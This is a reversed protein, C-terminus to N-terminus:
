AGTSQAWIDNRQDADNASRSAYADEIADLISAECKREIQRALQGWLNPSQAFDVDLWATRGNALSVCQRISIVNGAPDVECDGVFPTEVPHGEFSLEADIDIDVTVNSSWSM